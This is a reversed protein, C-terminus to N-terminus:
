IVFLNVVELKPQRFIYVAKSSVRPFFHLRSGKVVNIALLRKEALM